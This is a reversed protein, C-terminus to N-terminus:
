SLRSAGGGFNTPRGTPEFDPLSQENAMFLAMSNKSVYTKELCFLEVNAPAFSTCVNALLTGTLTSLCLIRHMAITEGSFQKKVVTEGSFQQIITAAIAKSGLEAFFM